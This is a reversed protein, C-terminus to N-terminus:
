GRAQVEGCSLSWGLSTLARPPSAPHSAPGFARASLLLWCLFVHPHMPCYPEPCRHGGRGEGGPSSAEQWDSKGLGGPVCCSCPSHYQGPALSSCSLPLWPAVPAGRCYLLLLLVELLLSLSGSWFEGGRLANGHAVCCARPHLTTCLRFSISNKLLLQM